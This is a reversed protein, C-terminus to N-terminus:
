RPILMNPTLKIHAIINISENDAKILDILCCITLKLLKM